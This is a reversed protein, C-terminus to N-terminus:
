IWCIAEEEDLNDEAVNKGVLYVSYMKTRKVLAKYYTNEENLNRDVIRKARKLQSSSIKFIKTFRLLTNFNIFWTGGLVEGYEEHYEIIPRPIPNPLCWLCIPHEKIKKNRIIVETVKYIEVCYLIM